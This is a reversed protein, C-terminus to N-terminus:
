IYNLIGCMICFMVQKQYDYSKLKNCEEVNSLFGCEVMVAPVKAYYLMYINTGTKKIERKNEPQLLERVALQISQALPESDENNPSYFVQTGSYKASSFKNQHISIVISDPTSNILNARNHIDSVKKQRITNCNGADFILEDKTRTMVVNYGMLKMSIELKKSLALNIDKELTGDKAVAGGDIGGHGADIIVTKYKTDLNNAFSSISRENKYIVLVILGVFIVMIFFVALFVSWKPKM